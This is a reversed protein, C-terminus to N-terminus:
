GFPLSGPTKEKTRNPDGQHNQELWNTLYILSGMVNKAARDRDEADLRDLAPGGLVFLYGLIYERKLPKM